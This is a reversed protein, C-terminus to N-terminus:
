RVNWHFLFANCCLFTFYLIWMVFQELALFDSPSLNSAMHKMIATEMNIDPFISIHFYAITSSVIHSTNDTQEHTKVVDIKMITKGKNHQLYTDVIFQYWLLLLKVIVISDFYIEAFYKVFDQSIKTYIWSLCTSHSCLQLNFAWM